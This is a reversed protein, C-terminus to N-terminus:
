SWLLIVSPIEVPGMAMETPSRSPRFELDCENPIKDRFSYFTLTTSLQPGIPKRNTVHIRSKSRPHGQFKVHQLSADTQVGM